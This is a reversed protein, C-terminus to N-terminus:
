TVQIKNQSQHVKLLITYRGTNELVHTFDQTSTQRKGSIETGGVMKEKNRKDSWVRKGHM